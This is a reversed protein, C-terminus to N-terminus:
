KGVEKMIQQQEIRLQKLDYELQRMEQKVEQPCEPKPPCGFRDQLSWLRQQKTAIVFNLQILDSKRLARIAITKTERLEEATAYHEELFYVGSVVAGLLVLVGLIANIKNWM